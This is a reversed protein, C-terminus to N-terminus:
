EFAWRSSPPGCSTMLLLINGLLCTSHMSRKSVIEYLLSLRHSYAWCCAGPGGLKLATGECHSEKTRSAVGKRSRVWPCQTRLLVKINVSSKKHNIFFTLNKHHTNEDAWREKNDKEITGGGGERGGRSRLAEQYTIHSAL